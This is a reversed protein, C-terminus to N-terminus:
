AGAEPEPPSKMDQAIRQSYQWLPEGPQREAGKTAEWQECCTGEHVTTLNMGQGYEAAGPCKGVNPGSVWPRPQGQRGPYDM